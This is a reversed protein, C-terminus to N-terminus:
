LMTALGRAATMIQGHVQEIRRHSSFRVRDLVGFVMLGLLYMAIVEASAYEDDPSDSPEPESARRDQAIEMFARAFPEAFIQRAGAMEAEWPRGRRFLETSAVLSTSSNENVLQVFALTILHMAEWSRARGRVQALQERMMNASHAISAGFLEAKSGFNYFVSGKSVGALEAVQDISSGEYGNSALLEITANLLRAQTADRRAVRGDRKTEPEPNPTESGFPDDDTM